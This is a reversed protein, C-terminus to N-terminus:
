NELSFFQTATCHLFPFFLLVFLVINLFSNENNLFGVDSNIRIKERRDMGNLYDWTDDSLGALASSSKM